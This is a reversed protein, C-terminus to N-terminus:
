KKEKPKRTSPKKTVAATVKKPKTATKKKTTAKTTPPTQQLQDLRAELDEVMRRTKQLVRKQTDFEERTVMDLQNLMHNFTVKAHQELDKKFDKLGPPLNDLFPKFFTDFSNPAAMNGGSRNDTSQLVIKRNASTTFYPKHPQKIKPLRPPNGPNTKATNLLV